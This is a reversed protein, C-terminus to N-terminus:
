LVAKGVYKTCLSKLSDNDLQYEDRLRVDPEGDQTMTCIGRNIDVLVFTGKLDEVKILIRSWFDIGVDMVKLGNKTKM